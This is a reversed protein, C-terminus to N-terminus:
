RRVEARKSRRRGRRGHAIAQRINEMVTGMFMDELALKM